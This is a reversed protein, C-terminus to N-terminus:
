QDTRKNNIDSEFKEKARILQENTKNLCDRGVVLLQAIVVPDKELRSLEFEKRANRKLVDAWINGNQDKWWFTRCTRLIDRYLRLGEAKTNWTM